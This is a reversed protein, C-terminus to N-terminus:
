RQNSLPKVGQRTILVRGGHAVLFPSIPQGNLTLEVQTPKSIIVEFQKSAVWRENSGRQLRQQTLLKGDARVKVWTTRTATVVLELSPANALPVAPTAPVSMSDNVLSVSALKPAAPAPSEARPTSAAQASAANQPEASPAKKAAAALKAKAAPKGAQRAPLGAPAKAVTTKPPLPNALLLGVIAVGVAAAAGVRRPVHFSPWRITPWRITPWRFQFMPASPPPLPEQQPKAQPWVLQTVLREADLRLFRAYTSLFGKVYVPSMMDQLRDAELSELVWPQIKTQEAVDALSLKRELRVAQLQAGVSM